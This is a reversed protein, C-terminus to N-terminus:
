TAAMPSSDAIQLGNLVCGENEMLKDLVASYVEDTIRPGVKTTARFFNCLNAGHLPGGQWTMFLKLVETESSLLAQMVVPSILGFGRLIPLSRQQHQSTLFKTGVETHDRLHTLGAVISTCAAIYDDLHTRADHDNRFSCASNNVKLFASIRSSRDREVWVERCYGYSLSPDLCLGRPNFVALDADIWVVRDFGEELCQRALLLRALDAVVTIHECAIRRYWDPVLDLFGDGMFRYTFNSKVTWARVTSLCREIWGPVDRDRFSQVVITRPCADMLLGLASRNQFDAAREWKM